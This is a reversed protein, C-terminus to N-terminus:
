NPPWQKIEVEVQFQRYNQSPGGGVEFDVSKVPLCVGHRQATDM